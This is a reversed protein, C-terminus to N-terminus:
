ILLDFDQILPLRTARRGTLDFLANALAPMSPPTGPEGVGGMHAATELIQVSFAPANHMRLADYDTYNRQAVAGGEFTIEGMVAASLGYIAAGTMQAEINRRDLATGVDCAIWVHNIRIGEPSDAVEIVQAVPTGFSYTFAVGRGIGEPTQGTWESMAAVAAIVGASPAHERTALQLRFELPDRGAAHAMEDIFSEMMFGNISSGVSRWFGLPVALDALHGAIRYNPIGYPQDFAGEVHGKDPGPPTFGMIRALTNRVVSPAAIQGSLSVAEGDKVVGRFRAMAGPRFYGQQMDEERTWTVQVPVDQMQRAVQTAFVAADVETRRGFGGGMLPIHVTVAEPDLGAVEACKDRLILPAQNGAWVTLASGTYLATANMPEMTSHALFPVAYEAVVETGGAVPLDVDGDDRLTSNAETDFAAAIVAFMAETTAPYAAPAWEVVVADAGQFALWTNSAVVAFGTGLDIVREVGPMALAAAPDFSVMGARGPNMRVTAFKMGPLRVDIGFEATGTAKALMDRRPAGDGLLKWTSKDRLEVEPPDILAADAALDAYPIATGDPAVVQGMETRLEAVPLGLRAAAVQKLAERASAGAARMKVYGDKSSTSGGTMQLSFIKGMVGMQKALGHQFNSLAYDPYPLGAGGIAGNYYAQAPPGHLVTVTEWDLDLEEAVLAALTSHIGQGMEARPAIITVGDANILIYPNLTAEGAAPRLPNELPKRALYVGFAVGGAIAVSGVLFTRRAIKGIRSM